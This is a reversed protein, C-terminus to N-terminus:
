AIRMNNRPKLRRMLRYFIVLYMAWSGVYKRLIAPYLKWFTSDRQQSSYGSGSFWVLPKKLYAIRMDAKSWLIKINVFHDAQVKMQRPYPGYTEFVKREYIIGQHCLNRFLIRFRSPFGSYVGRTGYYADLYLMQPKETRLVELAERITPLLIDDKGVFYLYDGTSERAGDNMAAYISSHSEPYIQVEPFAEKTTTVHRKPTVVIVEISTMVGVALKISDLCRRLEIDPALSPIIISLLM